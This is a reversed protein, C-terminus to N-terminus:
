PALRSSAPKTRPLRLPAPNLCTRCCLSRAVSRHRVSSRLVGLLFRAPRLRVAVGSASGLAAGALWALVMTSKGEKCTLLDIFTGHALLQPAARQSPPAARWILHVSSRATNDHKGGVIM